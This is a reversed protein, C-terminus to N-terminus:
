INKREQLNQLIFYILMIIIAFLLVTGSPINEIYLLTVVGIFFGIKTGEPHLTQFIYIFLLIIAIIIFLTSSLWSGVIDVLDFNFGPGGGIGNPPATITDPDPITLNEEAVALPSSFIFFILLFIFIIGRM